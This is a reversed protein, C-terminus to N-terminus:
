AVNREVPYGVLAPEARRHAGVELLALAGNGEDRGELAGRRGLRIADVGHELAVSRLRALDLLDAEEDLAVPPDFVRQPAGLVIRPAGLLREISEGVAGVLLREEEDGVVHHLAVGLTRFPTMGAGTMVRVVSKPVRSGQTPMMFPTMRPIQGSARRTSMLWSM